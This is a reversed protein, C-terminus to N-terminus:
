KKEVTILEYYPNLYVIVKKGKYLLSPMASDSSSSLDKSYKEMFIDISKEYCWCEWKVIEGNEYRPRPKSFKSNFWDKFRIKVEYEWSSPHWAGDPRSENLILSIEKVTLDQVRKVVNGTVTRIDRIAEHPMTASSRWKDQPKDGDSKYYFGDKIGLHEGTTPDIDLYYFYDWSEKIGVPEGKPYQLPINTSCRVDNTNKDQFTATWKDEVLNSVFRLEWGGPPQKKLPVLFSFKDGVPQKDPPIYTEM